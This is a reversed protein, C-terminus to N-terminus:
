RREMAKLIMMIESITKDNSDNCENLMQIDIKIDELLKTKSDEKIIKRGELNLSIPVGNTVAQSFDWNDNHETRRYDWPHIATLGAITMFDTLNQKDFLMYHFNQEYTQGGMFPGLVSSIDNSKDYIEILNELSPVSLRLTGGPKLVRVWENVIDQTEDRNFHELVHASYVLDFTDDKFPLPNVESIHDVGPLKRIDLNEFPKPLINTGCGIHLYRLRNM